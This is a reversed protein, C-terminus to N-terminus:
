IDDCQMKDGYYGRLKGVATRSERTNDLSKSVLRERLKTVDYHSALNQANEELYNTKNEEFEVAPIGLSSEFSSELQTRELLIVRNSGGNILHNNHNLKLKWVRVALRGGASKLATSFSVLRRYFSTIVPLESSLWDIISHMSAVAQM